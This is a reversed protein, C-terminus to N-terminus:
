ACSMGHSLWLYCLVVLQLTKLLFFILFFFLFFFFDHRKVISYKVTPGTGLSFMEVRWVCVCWKVAPIMLM